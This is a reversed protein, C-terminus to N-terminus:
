KKKRKKNKREKKGRKEKKKKQVSHPLTRYQHSLFTRPMTAVIVIQPDV